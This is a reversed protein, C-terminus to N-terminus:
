VKTPYSEVGCRRMHSARAAKAVTGQPADCCCGGRRMALLLRSGTTCAEFRNKASGFGTSASSFVMM